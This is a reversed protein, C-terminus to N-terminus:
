EAFAPHYAVSGGAALAAVAVGDSGAFVSGYGGSAAAFGFSLYEPAELALAPQGVLEVVLM